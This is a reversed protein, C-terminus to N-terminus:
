AVGLAIHTCCTKYYPLTSRSRSHNRSNNWLDMAFPQSIRQLLLGALSGGSVYISLRISSTLANRCVYRTVSLIYQWHLCYSVFFLLDM